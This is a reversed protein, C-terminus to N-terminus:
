VREIEVYQFWTTPAGILGIIKECYDKPGVSVKYGRTCRGGNCSVVHRDMAQQVGDEDIYYIEENDGYCDFPCDFYKNNLIYATICYENCDKFIEYENTWFGKQRAYKQYAPRWEDELIIQEIEFLEKKLSDIKDQYKAIKVDFTDRIYKNYEEELPTLKALLEAKKAYPPYPQVSEDIPRREYVCDDDDNDDEIEDIPIDAVSTTDAACATDAVSTSTINLSDFHNM